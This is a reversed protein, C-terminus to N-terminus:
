KEGSDVFDTAAFLLVSNVTVHLFIIDFSYFCVSNSRAELADNKGIDRNDDNMEM